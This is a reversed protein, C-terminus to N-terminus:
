SPRPRRAGEAVPDRARPRRQPFRDLSLLLPPPRRRPGRAHPQLHPDHDAAGQRRDRRARSHHAPLRRPDGAPVSRVARRRPRTRRDAAGARPRGGVAGAGAAASAEPPLRRLLHRAGAGLDLRGRRRSRRRPHPHAPALLEVRLRRLRSRPGRLMAPARAPPRADRGAGQGARDQRHRARRRAAAPAALKLALFVSTALAEGAIYGGRALLSATDTVSAPLSTM